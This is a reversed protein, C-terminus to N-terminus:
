GLALGLVIRRKGGQGKFNGCIGKDSRQSKKSDVGSHELSSVLDKIRDFSFPLLNKEWHSGPDTTAKFCHFKEEGNVNYSVTICDDFKNTVNDKTESNRVGVINVNYQGSEFWKYGLGKVANKIQEMTFCVGCCAM